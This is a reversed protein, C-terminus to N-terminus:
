LNRENSFSLRDLEIILQLSLVCLPRLSYLLHRLMIGFFLMAAYIVAIIISLNMFHVNNTYGTPTSSSVKSIYPSMKGADIQLELSVMFHDKKQAGGESDNMLFLRLSSRQLGRGPFM